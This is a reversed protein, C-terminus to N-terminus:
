IRCLAEQTFSNGNWYKEQQTFGEAYWGAAAYTTGTFNSYLLNCDLFDPSDGFVRVVRGTVANICARDRNVSDYGIEALPYVLPGTNHNYGYWESMAAPNSARPYRVSNTNIAGYSGNEAADLSIQSTSGRILETNIQSMAIQGSSPLAM